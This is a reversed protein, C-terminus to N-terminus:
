WFPPRDFFGNTLSTQHSAYVVTNIFHEIPSDKCLALDGHEISLLINVKAYKVIQCRSNDLNDNYYDVNQLAIIKELSCLHIKHFTCCHEYLFCVSAVYRKLNFTNYITICYKLITSSTESLEYYKLQKQFHGLKFYNLINQEVDMPNTPVTPDSLTMKFDTGSLNGLETLIHFELITPPSNNEVIVYYTSKVQIICWSYESKWRFGGRFNSISANNRCTISNCILPPFGIRYAFFAFSLDKAFEFVLKNIIEEVTVPIDRKIITIVYLLKFFTIISTERNTHATFMTNCFEIIISTLLIGTSVRFENSFTFIEFTLARLWPSSSPFSQSQNSEMTHYKIVKFYYLSSGTRDQIM